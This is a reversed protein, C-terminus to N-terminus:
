EEGLPPTQTQPTLGALLPRSFDKRMQRTVAHTDCHATDHDHNSIADLRCWAALNEDRDNDGSRHNIHAVGVQVLLFQRLERPLAITTLVDTSRRDKSLSEAITRARMTSLSKLDPPLEGANGTTMGCATDFKVCLRGSLPVNDLGYCGDENVAVSALM